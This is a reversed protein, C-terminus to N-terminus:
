HLAIVEDREGQSFSHFIFASQLNPITSFAFDQNPQMIFTNMHEELSSREGYVRRKADRRHRVKIMLSAWSYINMNMMPSAWLLYDKGPTALLEKYNM